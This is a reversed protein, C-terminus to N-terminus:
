NIRIFNKDYFQLLMKFFDLFVTSNINKECKLYHYKLIIKFFKKTKVDAYNINMNQNQM